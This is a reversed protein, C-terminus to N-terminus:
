NLPGLWFNDDRTVLVFSPHQKWAENGWLRQLSLFRRMVNQGVTSHFPSYSSFREVKQETAFELSANIVADDNGERLHFIELHAGAAEIKQRLVHEMDPMDTYSGSTVHSPRRWWQGSEFGTKVLEVYVLVNYGQAVAPEIVHTLKSVFTLRKQLGVVLVALTHGNPKVRSVEFSPEWLVINESPEVTSQEVVRLCVVTTLYSYCCVLFM